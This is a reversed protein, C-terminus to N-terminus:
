IRRASHRRMAHTLMAREARWGHKKTVSLPLISEPTLELDGITHPRSCRGRAISSGRPRAAPRALWPSATRFITDRRGHNGIPWQASQAGVTNKTVSSFCMRLWFVRNNIFPLDIGLDIWSRRNHASLKMTRACDVIRAAPVGAAGAGPVFNSADEPAPV